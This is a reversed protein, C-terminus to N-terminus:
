VAQMLADEISFLWQQYGTSVVFQNFGYLYGTFMLAGLLIFLLGSVLETSHTTFVTRDELQFTIERGEMWRWVRSDGQKNELYTSFLILPTGLGLGYLFLMAGGQMASGATGAMVLTAGLIPGVCPTWAVGLSGGFLFAGLYSTPEGIDRDLGSIGRGYLSYVGFGIVFLGAIRGLAASQSQLFDGVFTATVGLLTFLLTLGLFFSVTMGKINRDASRFSYAMYAPLIPLTCPSLFSLLGALLAVLLLLPLPGSLNSAAQGTVEQLAPSPNNAAWFTDQRQEVVSRVTERAQERDQLLDNEVVTEAAKAWYYSRDLGGIDRMKAGITKMGADLYVPDGTERYLQVLAYAMVGNVDAPKDLLIHQGPAYQTRNPSNRAFFGGGYWDYLRQLSTNALREATREYEPNDLTRAAETFALSLYANDLLNGRVGKTGNADVYHYPGEETIIEEQYFQLTQEAMARYTDNGTREYMELYTIVAESNWDTYKTKELHPGEGSRNVKGFYHHENHAGTNGWFGGREEDYFRTRIFRHTGNVVEEAITSNPRFQTLYHYARLLRANDDLMKEYHPDSWDDNTSYRHFGGAVPDYLHYYQEIEDTSTNRLWGIRTYQNRRTTTVINLWRENSTEEYREMSYHLTRPQPFKADSGFGGYRDDFARPITRRYGSVISQLQRTSPVTANRKEYTYVTQTPQFEGGEVTQVAQQMLHRLRGPDRPGSFGTIKEGGPTLLVTSPWGGQLWQRTVDQRRDALVFVPVFNDNIYPYVQDNYLYEKSEYVQCWYCWSPATILLFVPKDDQRAQEFAAPGYDTWNILPKLEMSNEFSYHQDAAAFAPIASLLLLLILLKPWVRSM